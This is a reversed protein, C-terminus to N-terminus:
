IDTRDFFVEESLYRIGFGKQHKRRVPKRNGMFFDLMMSAENYGFHARFMCSSSIRPNIELLRFGVGDFRFQLNIVGSPKILSIIRSSTDRLQADDVVWVKSTSGSPALERRMEISDFVEGTGDSFVSCTFESDNTGIYPQFILEGLHNPRCEFENLSNVVGFGKSAYGFRPKFIFPLGLQSSLGDFSDEQVTLIRADDNCELLFRFTELKDQGLEVVRTEALAIKTESDAFLDRHTSLWRVDQEIGPIVLDIQLASTVERIWRGYGSSDTRPAVIFQDCWKQGVADRFIDSGVVWVDDRELKLSRIIGYGVVAGVGTVLVRKTM